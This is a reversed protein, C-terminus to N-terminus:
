GKSRYRAALKGGKTIIGAKLLFARGAAPSRTIKRGARRIGEIERRLDGSTITSYGATM